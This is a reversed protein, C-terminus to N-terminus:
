IVKINKNAKKYIVQHKTYKKKQHTSLKISDVTNKLLNYDISPLKPSCMWYYKKFLTDLEYEIPYYGILPSDVHSFLYHLEQPFLHKSESPMISLLQIIPTQPKSKNLKITNPNKFYKILDSLLPAHRFNYCWNWSPCDNYYYNFTWHLGEFYNLCINEIDKEYNTGFCKQYYRKKFGTEYFNIYKEEDRNLSPYFNLLDKHKDFENEYTKRPLRFRDRKKQLNKLNTLEFDSLKIIFHKLFTDNIKLKQIDVLNYNLMYYTELYVNLISELGDERLDLSPIHPLFDNGIFYCIFVYDHLLNSLQNEEFLSIKNILTYKENLEQKVSNMLQDINLYLYKDYNVKNGFEISERLLYINQRNSAISLMILDADLGYVVIKEQLNTDRIFKFIKHEGEGPVNSDSFLVDKSAYLSSKIHNEIKLSLNIMFDTGPSIANTDWYEESDQIKLKNKINSIEKKELITKFRRLRQQNMKSKPAVGDIAIYILEPNILNVLKDINSLIENIMRNEYQQKKSHKYGEQMIRRCCPHILCNLDLFLGYINDINDIDIIIDPYKDSIIKFYLPIGM